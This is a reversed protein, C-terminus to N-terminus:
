KGEMMAEIEFLSYRPTIHQSCNWSFGKVDFMFIREARHAYDKPDLLAFLETHDDINIIRVEAFLKLRTQNPYDMLFLSAKNNTVVNGATLYQKNGSFDVM